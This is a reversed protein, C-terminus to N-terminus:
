ARAWVGCDTGFVSAVVLHCHQSGVCRDFLCQWHDCEPDNIPGVHWMSVHDVRSVLVHRAASYGLWLPKFVYVCVYVCMFVCMCLRVCVCVCMYVCVSPFFVGLVDSVPLSIRTRPRTHLDTCTLPHGPVMSGVKVILCHMYM